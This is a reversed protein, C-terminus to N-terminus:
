LIYAVMKNKAVQLIFFLMDMLDKIFYEDKSFNAM